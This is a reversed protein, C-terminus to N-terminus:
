KRAKYGIHTLYKRLEVAVFDGEVVSIKELETVPIVIVVEDGIRKTQTVFLTRNDM